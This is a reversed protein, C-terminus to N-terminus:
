DALRDEAMLQLDCVTLVPFYRWSRAVPRRFKAVVVDFFVLHLLMHWKSMTRKPQPHGPRM